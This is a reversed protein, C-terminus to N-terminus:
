EYYPILINSDIITTTTTSCASKVTSTGQKNESTRGRTVCQVGDICGVSFFRIKLFPLAVEVGM